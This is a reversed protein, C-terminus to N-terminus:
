LSTNVAHRPPPPIREMHSLLLVSSVATYVDDVAPISGDPNFVAEHLAYKPWYRYPVTSFFIGVTSTQAAIALNRVGTDNAIVVRAGKILGTTEELSTPKIAVVNSYNRLTQMMPDISEWAMVGQLVFHDLQPYAVALREILQTYHAQPWCKSGVSATPFYVMYPKHHVRAPGPLDFVLPARPKFGLLRLMDLMTEAEFQFDSRWVVADFFVYRQWPRYPFGVKLKAQSLLCLWHSRTTSAQDFIIDQPGLAQARRIQERVSVQRQDSGYMTHVQDVLDVPAGYTYHSVMSLTLQANPFCRRLELLFPRLLVMDGLAAHRIVAVRRVQAPILDTIIRKAKASAWAGREFWFKM